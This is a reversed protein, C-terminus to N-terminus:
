GRRTPSVPPEFSWASAGQGPEEGVIGIILVGGEANAVGSVRARLEPKADSKTLLKGGKYDHDAGETVKDRALGAFIRRRSEAPRSRRRVPHAQARGRM